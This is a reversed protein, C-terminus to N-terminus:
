KMRRLFGNPNHTYLFRECAKDIIFEDHKLIWKEVAEFPGAPLDDRVPHGHINTDEVILYQRPTVMESYADLEKLVHDKTHDSDLIVMVKRFSSAFMQAQKITNPDVSSGTLYMIKPHQPFGPWRNIDITLIMGHQMLDCLHAMYLASGGHWTGCEIILDPRCEYLIEQYMMLDMPNKQIDVGQWNVTFQLNYWLKHFDDVISQQDIKYKPSIGAESVDPRMSGKVIKVPVGAGIQTVYSSEYKKM